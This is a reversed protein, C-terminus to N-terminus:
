VGCVGPLQVCGRRVSRRVRFVWRLSGRVGRRRCFGTNVERCYESCDTTNTSSCVNPAGSLDCDSECEYDPNNDCVLSNVFATSYSTDPEACYVGTGSNAAIYSDTIVVDLAASLWLAYQGANERVVVANTYLPSGVVFVAPGGSGTVVVGDMTVNAAAYAAVAEVASDALVVDKLAVVARFLAYVAASEGSRRITVCTLSCTAGSLCM